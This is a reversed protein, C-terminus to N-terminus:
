RPCSEFQARLRTQWAEDAPTRPQPEQADKSCGGPRVTIYADELEYVAPLGSDKILQLQGGVVHDVESHAPVKGVSLRPPKLDFGGKTPALQDLAEWLALQEPSPLGHNTRISPASNTDADFISWDATSDPFDTILRRVSAAFESASLPEDGHDFSRLTVALSTNAPKWPGDPSASGVIEYAYDGQSLKLWGQWPPQPTTKSPDVGVYMTSGTQAPFSQASRRVHLSAGLGGYVMSGHIQDAFTRGLASLQDATADAGVYVDFSATRVGFGTNSSVTHTVFTVGPQSRLVNDILGASWSGRFQCCTMGLVLVVGLIALRGKSGLRRM